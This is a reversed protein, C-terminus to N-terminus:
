CGGEPAADRSPLSGRNGGCASIGAGLYTWLLFLVPIHYRNAAASLLYPLVYFALLMVPLNLPSLLAAARRRVLVVLFGLLAGGALVRYWLRAPLRAAAMLKRGADGWRPQEPKEPDYLVYPAEGYTCSFFLLRFRVAVLGLYRGPHARIWATAYRWRVDDREYHGMEEFDMSPDANVYFSSFREARRQRKRSGPPFDEPLETYVHPGSVRPNNGYWLAGGANAILPTFRSFLRANVACLPLVMVLVVAQVVAARKLPRLLQRHALAQQILVLGGLPLLAPRNYAALGGAVGLLLLSSWSEIGRALLFFLFAVFFTGIVETCALNNFYLESLSSLWFLAMWTAAWRGFLRCAGLFAFAVASTFLVANTLGVVYLSDGFLRFVAAYVLKPGIAQEPNLSRDALGALARAEEYYGAYDSVQAVPFALAFWVRVALAAV